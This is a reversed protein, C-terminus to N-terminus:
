GLLVGEELRHSYAMLFFNVMKSSAAAFPIERSRRSQRSSGAVGPPPSVGQVCFIVEGEFPSDAEIAACANKIQTAFPLVTM